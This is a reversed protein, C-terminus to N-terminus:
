ATDRAGEDQSGVVCIMRRVEQLAQIVREMYTLQPHLFLTPVLHTPQGLSVTKQECADVLQKM